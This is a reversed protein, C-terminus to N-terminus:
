KGAQLQRIGPLFVTRTMEALDLLDVEERHQSWYSINHLMISFFLSILYDYDKMEPDLGTARAFTPRLLDMFKDRFSRSDALLSIRDAYASAQVALSQMFDEMPVPGDQSFQEAAAASMKELVDDEAAAALGFVDTFYLYFSSRNYGAIGVIDRVTIKELPKDTMVEFLADIFKSRTKQQTRSLKKM